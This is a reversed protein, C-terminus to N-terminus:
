WWRLLVALPDEALCTGPAPRCLRIQVGGSM